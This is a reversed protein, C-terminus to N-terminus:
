KNLFGATGNGMYDWVLVSYENDQRYIQVVEADKGFLKMYSVKNAEFKNFAERVAAADDAALFKYEQGREYTGLDARYIKM